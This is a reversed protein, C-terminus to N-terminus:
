KKEKKVKEKSFLDEPYKEDLEFLFVLRNAESTFPQSRYLGFGGSIM